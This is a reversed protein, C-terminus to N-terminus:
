SYLGFLYCSRCFISGSSENFWYSSQKKAKTRGFSVGQTIISLKNIDILYLSLKRLNLAM